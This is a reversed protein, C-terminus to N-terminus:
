KTRRKLKFVGGARTEAFVKEDFPLNATTAYVFDGVITASSVKEVNFPIAELLRGDPARHELRRGGWMAIYLSGDAPDVCMGDPSGDGSFDDCFVRKKSTTRTAPDFDYAYVRREDSVVFYLTRGDPSLGMGNPMGDTAEEICTFSGTAADLRWLEGRRAPRVPAVGCFYIGGGADFVDNFRTGAHDPLAWKLVPKGGFTSEYVECRETFLLLKGGDVFAFAGIKGLGPKFTEFADPPTDVKKRLVVGATIDVWYLSNEAKCWQPGEAVLCQAVAFIEPLM